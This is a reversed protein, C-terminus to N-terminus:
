LDLGAAEDYLREVEAELEAIRDRLQKVKRSEVITDEPWGWLCRVFMTDYCEDADVYHGVDWCRGRKANRIRRRSQM